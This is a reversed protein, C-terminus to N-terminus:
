KIVSICLFSLLHQIFDSINDLCSRKNVDNSCILPYQKVNEGNIIIDVSGIVDGSKVPAKISEPINYEIDVSDDDKIYASYNEDISVNINKCKGDTVCINFTKRDNFINQKTFSNKAYDLLVKSDTWKYTKNNPWGCALLTVIYTHEDDKYACVYCYGADATFGTKGSIINNYMSLFANANTVSYEKNSLNHFTYSQTQAIDLFHSNKICYSMMVGLEYATTSHVGYEDTADLGNPTVFHTNTCGLELAKKNMLDTFIRVLIRSQEKSIDKIFSSDSNYSNIFATDYLLENRDKDSLTCLYYYATNEAIIVATDNHSKLMLSYYLDQIHFREGRVANLQVDPMAAAYASTTAVYDDGCIELATILTMIKTTSANPAKVDAEKGYLLRNNDGDILAAYRAHLTPPSTSASATINKDSANLEAYLESSYKVPVYSAYTSTQTFSICKIIITFTLLISLIYKRSRLVTRWILVTLYIYKEKAIISM